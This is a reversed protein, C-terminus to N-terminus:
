VNGKSRLLYQIIKPHQSYLKKLLLESGQATNEDLTNDYKKRSPQDDDDDYYYSLVFVGRAQGLSPM